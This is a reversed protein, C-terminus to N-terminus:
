LLVRWNKQSRNDYVWLKLKTYDDLESPSLNNTEDFLEVLGPTSTLKFIIKQNRSRLNQEIIKKQLYQPTIELEDFCLAWKDKLAIPSSYNKNVSEFCDISISLLDVFDSYCIDPLDVNLNQREVLTNFDNVMARLKIIIDDLNPPIPLPINWYEILKLSLDVEFKSNCKNIEILSSFTDCTAILINVNVVGRFVDDIIKNNGVLYKKFNDLQSKWQRDAPIYIGVFPINAKVAKAEQTNWENLARPHLM